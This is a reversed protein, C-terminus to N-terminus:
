CKNQKSPLLVIGRIFYTKNISRIINEHGMPPQIVNKNSKIRANKCM